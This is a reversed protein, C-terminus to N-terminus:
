KGEGLKERELKKELVYLQRDEREKLAKNVYYYVAATAAAGGLLWFIKTKTEEKVEAM